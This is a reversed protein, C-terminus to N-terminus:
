CTATFAEHFEVTGVARAGGLRLAMFYEPPVGDLVLDSTNAFGFRTYFAPDGVLVCGAAGLDRLGALGRELLARGVGRAQLVPLVSVPGLGYWDPSGDSIAVPSFAVHGVVRGEWETVLSLTLAGARRLAKIIFAETQQSFPHSAFAQRTVEAIDAVDEAREPRITVALPDTTNM